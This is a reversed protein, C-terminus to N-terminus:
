QCSVPINVPLTAIATTYVSNEYLGIQTQTGPCYTYAKQIQFTLTGPPSQTTVLNGDVQDPLTQVILDTGIPINNLNIKLTVSGSCNGFFGSPICQITTASVFTVAGSGSFTAILTQDQNMVIICDVPLSCGLPGLGNPASPGGWGVFTSGNLAMATLRVQTGAAFTKTCPVVVSSSPQACVLGQPQSTVTGSGLGAMVVTLTFGNSTPNQVAILAGAPTTPDKAQIIRNASEGSNSSGYTCSVANDGNAATNPITLNLLYLGPSVVGAFTLPAAAGGVQCVPLVPLPGSQIASGNVLPTSPLGFGVAYLAVTEGPKAPTSYGPYLTTPGLLTGNAHTAAIYGATSFLLFSPAVAEMDATFPPSSVGANTVVVPVPGITNDLATLITLQDQPCAPDTSASCYWYVFGPLGNVTVSIPGLQTPMLGSAFSPASSWITGSAPTNAPVLNAGKIVIFTNQAIVPGAYATTVSTITPNTNGITFNLTFLPTKAQDWFVQVTWTGPYSAAPAGNIPIEYSFCEYGNPGTSSVSSSLTTYLVGDPRLFGMQASDGALAGTVDFYLWVQPSTATFSTVSPPTACSGNVIGTTNSTVKDLVTVTSNGLITFPITTLPTSSGNIYVGLTWSGAGGGGPFLASFNQGFPGLIPATGVSPCLLYNFGSQFSGASYSWDLTPEPTGNYSFRFRVTSQPTLGLLGVWVTMIPDGAHFAAATPATDPCVVNPNSVSETLVPGSDVTVGQGAAATLCALGLVGAKLWSPPRLLTGLIGM